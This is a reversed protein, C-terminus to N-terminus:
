GAQLDLRSFRRANRREKRIVANALDVGLGDALHVLYLQVDALEDEVEHRAHAHHRALGASVRIERALEGLEEILMLITDQPKEASWGREESVGQYYRQLKALGEVAEVVRMSPAGAVDRPDHVFQVEDPVFALLSTTLAFVPLGLTAALEVRAEVGKAQANGFDALWLFDAVSLVDQEEGFLSPQHARTGFEREGLEAGDVLVRAIFGAGRLREAASASSANGGTVIALLPLLGPHPPGSWDPIRHGATRATSVSRRAGSSALASEHSANGELSPAGPLSQTLPPQEVLSVERGPPPRCGGKAQPSELRRKATPQLGVM